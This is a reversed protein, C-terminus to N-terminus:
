AILEREIFREDFGIPSIKYRLVIKVTGPHQEDLVAYVSVIEYNTILKGILSSLYTEVIEQVRKKRYPTYYVGLYDAFDLERGIYLCIRYITFIKLPDGHPYLTLLNEITTRGDMHTKFYAMDEIKDTFDIDYVSSLESVDSPYQAPSTNRIMRALEVNGWNIGELNNAVFVIDGYISGSLLNNKFKERKSYMDGLFADIDEYLSAHADTILYLTNVGAKKQQALYQAYYTKRGDQTPDYFFEDMMLNIPIAYAFDHEGLLMAARMYGHLNEINMLFVDDISEACLHEYADTLDCDGFVERAESLYEPRVIDYLHKNTAGIGILVFSNHKDKINIGRIM